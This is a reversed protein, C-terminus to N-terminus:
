HRLRHRGGQQSQPHVLSRYLEVIANILVQGANVLYRLDLEEIKSIHLGSEWTVHWIWERTRGVLSLQVGIQLGTNVVRGAPLTDVAVAIRVETIGHESVDECIM